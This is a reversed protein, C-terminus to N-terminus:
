FVSFILVINEEGGKLLESRLSQILDREHCMYTEQRTQQTCFLDKWCRMCDSHEEVKCYWFLKRSFSEFIQWLCMINGKQVFVSFCIAGLHHTEGSTTFKLSLTAGIYAASLTSPDIIHPKKQQSCSVYYYVRHTTTTQYYIMCTAADPNWSASTSTIFINSIVAANCLAHM